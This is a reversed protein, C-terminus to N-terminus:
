ALLAQGRKEHDLPNFCGIRGHHQVQELLRFNQNNNLIAFLYGTPKRIM